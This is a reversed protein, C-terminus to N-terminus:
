ERQQEPEATEHEGADSASGFRRGSRDTRDIVQQRHRILRLARDLTRESQCARGRELLSSGLPGGAKHSDM